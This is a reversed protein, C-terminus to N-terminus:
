RFRSCGLRGALPQLVKPLDSAMRKGQGAALIVVSLPMLWFQLPSRDPRVSRRGPNFFQM